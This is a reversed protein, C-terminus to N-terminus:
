CGPRQGHRHLGQGGKDSPLRCGVRPFGHFRHTDVIRWRRQHRFPRGTRRCRRSLLDKCWPILPEVRGARRFLAPRLRARVVHARRRHQPARRRDALRSREVIRANRQRHRGRRDRHRHGGPKTRARTPRRGRPEATLRDGFLPRTAPPIRQRERHRFPTPPRQHQVAAVSTPTSSRGRTLGSISGPATRIGSICVRRRLPRRGPRSPTSSVPPHSSRKTTAHHCVTKEAAM